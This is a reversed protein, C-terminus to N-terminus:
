KESKKVGARLFVATLGLLAELTGEPIDVGLARAIGTGITFAAAIFTKTKLVSFDMM